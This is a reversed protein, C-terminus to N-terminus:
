FPTAMEDQLWLVEYPQLLLRGDRWNPPCLTIKDIFRRQEHRAWERELVQTSLTTEFPAFNVLVLTKQTPNLPSWRLLALIHINDHEILERTDFDAFEPSQKRLEILHKIGSFVRYELTQSDHRREAREWDITPRHLWRNDDRRHPEELYAYNNTTGLEDGYYLLPIGGYSLIIAHLLLIKRVAHEIEQENNEALARELGCLSALSGSIRADGTKPNEMFPQGTAFSPGFRGTYYNIIFRRHDNPDYGARAIDANDFGLGIDDHCRAYNLWTARELKKPISEHGRLMLRTNQTAIGDWLLAMFSANYAIECEKALIADEGFYRAVESPAVIAEAIFLVGPAVIQFCDKIAQVLLHAEYENQCMSGVKKWLFAVADLRLVDAGLNAFNFMIDVMELFVRPNQFNLDWQYNHFVTMVWRQMEENWTFNGPAASPFVEPMTREYRDPETRDPFTYYYDQYEREGARARQAWEHEDSTHNLVVDLAMLMGHERFAAALDRLDDITGFREDVARFNSVAYGGDSAGRPCELLPMLHVLNVGLEELYPLREEMGKITGSFANVYLATAVLKESLFWNHDDEREKDRAILEDPREIYNRALMEVLDQMFQDFDDRQGYLRHLISYLSYFNAGLRTYFHRTNRQRLKPDLDDLIRNLHAHSIQEYM